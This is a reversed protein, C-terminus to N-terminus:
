LTGQAIANDYRTPYAIDKAALINTPIEYMAIPLMILLINLKLPLSMAFPTKRFRIIGPKPNKSLMTLLGSKPPLNVKIKNSKPAIMATMMNNPNFVNTIFSAFSFLIIAVRQM